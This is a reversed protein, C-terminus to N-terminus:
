ADLLEVTVLNSNHKANYNIIQRRDMDKLMSTVQQVTLGLSMSLLKIQFEMSSATAKRRRLWNLIDSEIIALNPGTNQKPPNIEKARITSPQPPLVGLHTSASENKRDNSTVRAIKQLGEMVKATNIPSPQSKESETAEKHLTKALCVLPITLTFEDGEETHEVDTALVKQNALQSFSGLAAYGQVAVVGKRIAKRTVTLPIRGETNFVLKIKDADEDRGVLVKIKDGHQLNYKEIIPKQILLVLSPKANEPKNIRLKFLVNKKIPRSKEVIPNDIEEFM